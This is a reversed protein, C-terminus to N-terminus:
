HSLEQWLLQALQALWTDAEIEAQSDPLQDCFLAMVVEQEPTELRAPAHIYAVDSRTGPLEGPKNAVRIPAKFYFPIKELDESRFLINLMWQCAEPALLRGQALNSMLQLMDLPCTWNDRGASRAELDMMKRNLETAQLDQARIWAQIKELGLHEILLNTALNDSRIMMWEALTDGDVVSGPALRAFYPSDEVDDCPDYLYTFTKRPEKPQFREQAYVALIPLKITSAALFRRNQYCRLQGTKLNRAAWGAQGRLHKLHQQLAPSLM